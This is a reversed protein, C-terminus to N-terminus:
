YGYLCAQKNCDYHLIHFDLKGQSLKNIVQYKGSLSISCMQLRVSYAIKIFYSIGLTSLM